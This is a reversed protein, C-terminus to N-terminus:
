QYLVLMSIPPVFVMESVIGPIDVGIKLDKAAINWEGEPLIFEIEKKHPNYFVIIDKWIDHNPHDKLIFGVTDVHTKFFFLHKKIQQNNIMRFAPHERRLKILGQYYDFVYKYKSKREWKLQNIEIGANYSNHHGYKTRLIEEGGQLFPIGQSTFVIGQALLDMRICDEESMGPDSKRLKDWLTLNDHSSVYNVTESPELAFDKVRENYEISGVVGKKIIEGQFPALAVFGKGMGDNDGKIANRFNDNFVAIRMGKQRGKLMQKSPDLTTHGGTWPEGYLLLFPNIKRLEREIVKMTDQDYLALLDFRFGDIHYEKTWYLLSDIIFKRAMAKETDLENGTGSGNSYNGSSDFRYYYGPFLINFASDIAAFSHNYVVDMVIALNNDHLVKIMKKFERIRSDNSPNSAYSGEPVNYFYPDYGWNYDDHNYENVTAFDFVPLLHVHTIGLELLHDLGTKLGEKNKTEREIFSLYKGKNAMGSFPSSSFDKVHIEYIVADQPNNLVIRKDNNWDEPDTAELDVILGRKSNASLGRTYPDVTDSINGDINVRYLFYKGALDGEVGLFWTGNNSRHLEAKLISESDSEDEFLLLEIKQAAPAWVRFGTWDKKYEIGLDNGEYVLDEPSIRKILRDYLEKDPNMFDSGQLIVTVLAIVNYSYDKLITM